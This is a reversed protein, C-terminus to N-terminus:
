LQGCYHRGSSATSPTLIKALQIVEADDRRGYLGSAM